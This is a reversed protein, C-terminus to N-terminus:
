RAVTSKSRRRFLLFWLGGAVISVLLACVVQLALALVTVKVALAGMNAFIVALAAAALFPIVM